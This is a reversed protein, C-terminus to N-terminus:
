LEECHRASGQVSFHLVRVIGALDKQSGVYNFSNEQFIEVIEKEQGFGIEMIISGGVKLYQKSQKALAKYFDLGDSGGDLASLPEFDKVDRQLNAIDDSKIYPPNSIILDFKENDGVNAFLNSEIIELRDELNHKRLFNAKHTM